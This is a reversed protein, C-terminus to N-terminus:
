MVGGGGDGLAVSLSVREKWYVSWDRREREVKLSLSSLLQLNIIAPLQL